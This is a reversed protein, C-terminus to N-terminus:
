QFATSYCWVSLFDIRRGTPGARDVLERTVHTVTQRSLTGGTPYAARAVDIMAAPVTISGDNPEVCLVAPGQPGTFAVASEIAYGAPPASDPTTWAFTQPTGAALTIPEPGPSTLAFDAPAYLVDAFTQPPLDPSGGFTVTHAARPALYSAGPTTDLQAFWAGAPHTRGLFDTGTAPQRTFALPQGGGSLTLTGPDLYSREALPNTAVPWNRRGTLDTCGNIAPYPFYRTSGPSRYLFGLVRTGATGDAFRLHEVRVEGGEDADYCKFGPSAGPACPTAADPPTPTAACAALGACAAPGAVSLLHLRM